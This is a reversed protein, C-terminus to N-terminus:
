RLLLLDEVVELRFAALHVRGVDVGEAAVRLLLVELFVAVLPRLARELADVGDASRRWEALPRGWGSRGGCAPSPAAAHDGEGAQPPPNPHPFSCPPLTINRSIPRRSWRPASAIAASISAVINTHKM